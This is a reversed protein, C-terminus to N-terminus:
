CSYTEAELFVMKLNWVMWVPTLVVDHALACASLLHQLFIWVALIICHYYLSLHLNIAMCVCLMVFVLLVKVLAVVIV